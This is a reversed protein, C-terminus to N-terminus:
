LAIRTAEAVLAARIGATRRTAVLRALVVRGHRRSLRAFVLLLLLL